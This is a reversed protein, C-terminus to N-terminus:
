ESNNYNNVDELYATFTLGLPGNIYTIQYIRWVFGTKNATIWDGINISGATYTVNISSTTLITFSSNYLYNGTSSLQGAVIRPRSYPPTSKSSDNGNLVILFPTTVGSM